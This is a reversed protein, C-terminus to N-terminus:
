PNGAYKAKLLDVSLSLGDLIKSTLCKHLWYIHQSSCVNATYASGSCIKGSMALSLCGSLSFCSVFSPCQVIIVFLESLIHIYLYFLINIYINYYIHYLMYEIIYIIIYIYINYLIFCIGYLIIYIIYCRIYLM